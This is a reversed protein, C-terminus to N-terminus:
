PSLPGGWPSLPLSDVQWHLLCSNSGQALLIGQLLFHCGVGINKGLSDGHVSSGSPSCDMPNRLTPCLQTVLCVSSQLMNVLLRKCSSSTTNIVAFQFCSLHENIIVYFILCWWSLPCSNSCVGPSLPPWPLSAHQLGHPRLSDPEVSHIFLLLFRFSSTNM